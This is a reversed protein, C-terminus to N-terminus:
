IEAISYIIVTSYDGGKINLPIGLEYIIKFSDSSGDKDSVFLVMEGKKVQTKNLFRVTGKTEASETRLNFYEQPIINGEKDTLEQIVKQSVQYPKGANTKIEINVVSTRPPQLPKLNLFQMVGGMEPSVVLDFIRENEVELGLTDILSTTPGELYYKIVTRYKGAKEKKLDGLSYTVIFDEPEGRLGSTYIVQQRSSLPTPVSVGSGKRAERIFFNVAEYSLQNGESSTLPEPILQLIRFQSGLGGKISVLVDCSREEERTSNLSVTRGGQATKIEIKSEVEIEAFVNLIVTVPSQTSDIPELTYGIRGRYSGPAQDEPIILGYVLNFSDSLGQQNSTYLITRGLSLPIEQEVNMTGYKNTGRVGYVFFNNQPISGGQSNTLSEFFTQVLRYQKAIDSTIDVTVERNVRGLIPSIKGYKLDYGGEYPRVTLSFTSALAYNYIFIGALVLSSIVLIFSMRKIM